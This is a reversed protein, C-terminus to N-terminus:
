DGEKDGLEVKNASRFIEIKKIGYVFDNGVKSLEHFAEFNM